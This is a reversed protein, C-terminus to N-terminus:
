CEAVPLRLVGGNTAKASHWQGGECLPSMEAVVIAPPRDPPICGVSMYITVCVRELVTGLM